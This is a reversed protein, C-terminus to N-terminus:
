EGCTCGYLHRRRSQRQQPRRSLLAKGDNFSREAITTTRIVFDEPADDSEKLKSKLVLAAVAPAASIGSLDEVLDAGHWMSQTEITHPVRTLLNSPAGLALTGGTALLASAVKKPM